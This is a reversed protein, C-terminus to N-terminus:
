WFRPLISIALRAPYPPGIEKPLLHIFLPGHRYSDMSSSVVLGLSQRLLDDAVNMAVGFAGQSWGPRSKSELRGTLLAM